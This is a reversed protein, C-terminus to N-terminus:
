HKGGMEEKQDLKAPDEELQKVVDQMFKAAVAGDIVRHDYTFSLPLMKRIKIEGDKVVPEEKTRGIGLLGSEPSNLIPTFHEVGLPGLNSITFSGGKLDMLNLKRERADTALKVIEGAVEKLDKFNVRKIVPVMLGDDTATAIGVNYYKKMVITDDELISNVMPNQKLANAVAKTIYVLSTLKIGEKEYEEKKSKRDAELDTVDATHFNTVQPATYFSHAMHEAVKKRIGKM